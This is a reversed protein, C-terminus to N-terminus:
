PMVVGKMRLIEALRAQLESLRGSISAIEAIIARMEDQVHLESTGNAYVSVPLPAVPEVPRTETPEGPGENVAPAPQPDSPMAAMAVLEAHKRAVHREVFESGAFEQGCFPCANLTEAVPAAAVAALVPELQVAAQEDSCSECLGGYQAAEEPTIPKDCVLCSVLEGTVAVPEPEAQQEPEEGDLPARASLRIAEEVTM